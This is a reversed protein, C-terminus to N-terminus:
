GSTCVRTAPALSAAAGPLLGAQIKAVLVRRVSSDLREPSITSGVAQIVAEAMQREDDVPGVSLLVDAGAALAMVASEAPTYNATVVKMAGLDDTMVLGGYALDSRLIDTV